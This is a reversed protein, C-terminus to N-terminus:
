IDEKEDYDLFSEIILKGKNKDWECKIIMEDNPIDFIKRLLIPVNTYERVIKRRQYHPIIM